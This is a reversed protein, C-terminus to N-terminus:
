PKDKFTYDVDTVEANHFGKVILGAKELAAIVDPDHGPVIHLNPNAIKLAHLTALEALVADRDEKLFLWTAARARERGTDINRMTWAVDGTFLFEQGSALKVYVMQSGPTHGPAKILVVGPAVALYKDYAIPKYDAFFEKHYGPNYDDLHAVQEVTLKARPLEYKAWPSGLLGGIHDNHEHTVVILRAYKLAARIHLAAAEDLTVKMLAAGRPTVGTDVIATWTPFDLKYAFIVLPVQSWGDGALVVNAAFSFPAVHEDHITVPKDGPLSDALRRVERIDLAYTQTPAGSELFLWYYAGGGAIAVLLVLAILGRKLGSSMINGGVGRREAHLLTLTRYERVGIL